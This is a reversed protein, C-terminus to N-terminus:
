KKAAPEPTTTPTTAADSFAIPMVEVIKDTSPRYLIAKKAKTYILVKDGNATNAVFTQDKLKEKDTVTAVSPTEDAPLSILKGVKSVLASTEQQAVSDPNAVAKTYKNYFYGATGLAGLVVIAAVVILVIKKVNKGKAM